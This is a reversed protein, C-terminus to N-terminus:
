LEGLADRLRRLVRWRAIYVANRTMGLDAAVDGASQGAVVVRWFAQWTREEFEDRVLGLARRCLLATEGPDPDDTAPAPVELMVQQADPGGAPHEQCAQRRLWDGLKHRTIARLWGRFTGRERDHVFDAIRVAVTLFVEQVVDEADPAHLGARCWRYVLPGYLQALRRWAEPSGRQVGELLTSSTSGPDPV